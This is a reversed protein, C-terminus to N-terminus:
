DEANLKSILRAAAQWAWFMLGGAIYILFIKKDASVMCSIQFCTSVFVIVLTLYILFKRVM